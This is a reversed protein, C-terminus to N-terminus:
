YQDQFVLELFTLSSSKVGNHLLCLLIKHLKCDVSEWLWIDFHMHKILRITWKYLMKFISSMNNWTQKMSIKCTVKFKLDKGLDSINLHGMYNLIPKIDVYDFYLIGSHALTVYCIAHVQKSVDVVNLYVLGSELSVASCSVQVRFCLLSKSCCQVTECLCWKMSSSNWGCWCSM